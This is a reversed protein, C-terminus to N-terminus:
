QAADSIVGLGDLMPRFKTNTEKYEQEPVSAELIGCGAFLTARNGRILASRIGVSFDGNGQSDCWGIPSGYLGRRFPENETLWHVARDRPVGGLAPTPHLAEVFHLVSLNDKSKGRVPTYLHQIDRNKMLVPHDPVALSSCLRSLAKVIMTVVYQHEQRNKTDSLLAKGLRDDEEKTLGRRASGALCMSEIMQGQKRVLREPSAGIFYDTGSELCFIFDGAQQAKLRRLVDTPDPHGDFHLRLTRALVVKEMQRAKLATVARDVLRVWDPLIQQETKQLRLSHFPPKTIPVQQMEKAKVKMAGILQELSEDVHQFANVTLFTQGQTVTLMVGPLYFCGENFHDWLGNEHDASTFSFGGFLIPGTGQQDTEGFRVARRTLHRWEEEAHTIRNTGSVAHIVAAAGVGAFILDASPSQWYFRKGYSNAKGAQFFMLPDMLKIKMTLSILRADSNKRDDRYNDDRNLCTTDYGTDTEMFM